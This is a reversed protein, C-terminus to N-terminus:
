LGSVADVEVALNASTYYQATVSWGVQIGALTSSDGSYITDVYVYLILGGAGDDLTLNFNAADVALVTGTFQGDVEGFPFTHAIFDM